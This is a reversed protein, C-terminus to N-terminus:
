VLSEKRLKEAYKDADAAAKLCCWLIFFTIM